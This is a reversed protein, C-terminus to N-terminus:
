ANPEDDFRKEMVLGTEGDRYYGPRHEIVCYGTHRYLTIAPVNGARVTLRVAPKNLRKECAALLQRGVGRRQHAPDVGLTIIWSHARWHGRTASVFGALSGDPAVIKLNLIGPWLFLLLLDPYPYADRPFILRELRHVARLDLLTARRVTYTPQGSL